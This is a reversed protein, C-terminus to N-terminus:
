VNSKGRKSTDYLKVLRLRSGLYELAQQQTYIEHQAIDQLCIALHELMYDECGILQVIEQESEMGMAKFVVFIPVIETFSNSKM